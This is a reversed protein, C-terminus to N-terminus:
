IIIIKEQEIHTTENNPRENLTKGSRQMKNDLQRTKQLIDTLTIKHEHKQRTHRQKKKM